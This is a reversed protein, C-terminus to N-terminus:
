CAAPLASLPGRPAPRPGSGFCAQPRRRKPLPNRLRNGVRGFKRDRRAREIRTVDDAAVGIAISISNGIAGFERLAHFREPKRGRMHTQFYASHGSGSVMDWDKPIVRDLADGRSFGAPGTSFHQRM